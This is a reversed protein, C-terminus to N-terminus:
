QRPPEPSDRHVTATMKDLDISLDNPGPGPAPVINVDTEQREKEERWYRQGPDFIEIWSM